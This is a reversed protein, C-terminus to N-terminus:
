IYYKYELFWKRIFEISEIGYADHYTLSLQSSAAM